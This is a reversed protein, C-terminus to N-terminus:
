RLAQLLSGTQKLVNLRAKERASQAEYFAIWKDNEQSRMAALDALAARGEDFQALTVSLQKRTVELDLRAVEAANQANQLEDFSRKADLSIRGRAGRIQERLQMTELEAVSRLAKPAIGPLVPITFSLGIQAAHRRFAGVFAQDFNYRALLSYQAILDIQPLRAARQAKAAYGRATLMSELRRLEANNALAAEQAEVANAPTAALDTETPATKVFDDANYGLVVALSREFFERDAALAAARQKARAVNLLAKDREVELERGEAVRAAVVGAIREYEEIQRRAVEHMQAAREADLYVSAARYAIDDRKIETDIATTRANQRAEAAQYTIPRNFFSQVGRAQFISPPSGNITLPFGYTYAAGSGVFLKPFFPDRIVRVNQAAKQEDLRAVIVEPNQKLAQDVAQRLTLTYVEPRAASACLLALLAPRIL